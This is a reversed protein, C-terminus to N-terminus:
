APRQALQCRVAMRTGQKVADTAQPWSQRLAMRCRGPQTNGDGPSGAGDVPASVRAFRRARYFALRDALHWASLSAQLHAKAARQLDDFAFVPDAAERLEADVQPPVTSGRAKAPLCSVVNTAVCLGALHM